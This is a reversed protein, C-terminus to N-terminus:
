WGGTKWGIFANGDIAAPCPTPSYFTGANPGVAVDALAFTTGSKSAEQLCVASKTVTLAGVSVDGANWTVKTNWGILPEIQALATSGAVSNDAYIEGDTYYTKQTTLGNRLDAQAARDEARKRAGLFTPIAISILIAIILVVVMLEILTFGEDDERRVRLSHILRM